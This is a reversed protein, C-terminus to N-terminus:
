TRFNSFNQRKLMNGSGIKAIEKLLTSELFYCYNKGCLNSSATKKLGLLAFLLGDRSFSSRMSSSLSFSEM